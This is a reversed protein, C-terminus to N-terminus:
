IEEVRIIQAGDTSLKVAEKAFDELGEEIIGIASGNLFGM